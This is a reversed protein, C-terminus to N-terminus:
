AKTGTLLRCLLVERQKNAYALYLMEDFLQLDVSGGPQRSNYKSFISTRSQNNVPRILYSSSPQVDRININAVVERPHPINIINSSADRLKRVVIMLVPLVICVNCIKIFLLATLQM